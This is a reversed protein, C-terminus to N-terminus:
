AQAAPPAALPLWIRLIDGDLVRLTGGRATVFETALAADDGGAGSPTALGAAGPIDVSVGGADPTLTVPRGGGSAAHRDLALAFVRGLAAPEVAAFFRSDPDPGPGPPAAQPRSATFM